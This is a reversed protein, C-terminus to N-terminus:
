QARKCFLGIIKLLRSITAVAYWGSRGRKTGLQNKASRGSPWIEEWGTQIWIHSKWIHSMVWEYTHCSEYIHCSENTHTVHSMWIHSKVWERTRRSLTECSYLRISKYTYIHEVYEYTPVREHSTVGLFSASENRQTVHSMGIHSMVRKYTHCSENRHTVRSMGIHSMVWEYTHCSETHCSENTHTVHGMWIHSMVWEYTHCSENMHTVHSMWIHSM